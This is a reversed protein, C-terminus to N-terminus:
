SSQCKSDDIKKRLSFLIELGGTQRNKASIEGGHLLVANKVISLGLGSGGADRGRANDVRYFREFLRSLAEPNVGSGNDSFSFFHYNDDEMSHEVIVQAGRGAYRISNETLNRFIAYLLSANAEMVVDQPIRNHLQIEADDLQQKLDKKVEEMISGIDCESKPYLNAAEEIKNITSVDSILETLRLLQMYSRELFFQQKDPSIDKKELLTEIYGRICSVPTRLEHAINGTMEHKIRREEESITIDAIVIEYSGDPFVQARLMYTSGNKSLKYKLTSNRGEEKKKEAFARLTEFEQCKLVEEDMIFVSSDNFSNMMRIFHSNTYIFKDNKDLFAVGNDSFAFHQLLKKREAEMRKRSQNLEFYSVAVERGIDGMRTHPFDVSQYLEPSTRAKIIFNKIIDMDKGLMNRFLLILLLCILVSVIFIYLFYSDSGTLYSQYEMPIAIRILYKNDFKRCFYFLEKNLSSSYRTKMGVRNALAAQVEPRLLHNEKMHTSDKIENDYLMRGDLSIISIRTFDPFMQSVSNLNMGNQSIYRDLMGANESVYYQLNRMRINREEKQQIGFLTGEVLIILISLYVFFYKIFNDRFVGKM